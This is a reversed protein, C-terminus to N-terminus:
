PVKLEPTTDHISECVEKTLIFVARIEPNTACFIDANAGSVAFVLGSQEFARDTFFLKRLGSSGNKVVGPQGFILDKGDQFVDGFTVAHSFCAAEGFDSVNGHTSVGFLRAFVGFLKM